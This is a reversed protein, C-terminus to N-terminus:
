GRGVGVYTFGAESVVSPEFFGRGDVL